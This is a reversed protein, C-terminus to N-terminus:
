NYRKATHCFELHTNRYKIGYSAHNKNSAWVEYFGKNDMLIHQKNGIYEIYIYGSEKMTAYM